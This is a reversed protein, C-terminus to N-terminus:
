ELMIKLSLHIHGDCDIIVRSLIEAPKALGSMPKEKAEILHFM